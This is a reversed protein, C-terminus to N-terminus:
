AQWGAPFVQCDPGVGADRDCDTCQLHCAKTSESSGRFLCGALHWAFARRQEAGSLVATRCTDNDCDQETEFSLMNRTRM